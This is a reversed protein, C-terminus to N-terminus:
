LKQGAGSFVERAGGNAGRNRAATAKERGNVEEEQLGSSLEGSSPSNDSDDLNVAGGADVSGARSSKSGSPLNSGNAKSGNATNGGSAKSGTRVSRGGESQTDDLELKHPAGAFAVFRNSQAYNGGGAANFAANPANGGGRMGTNPGVTDGINGGAGGMGMNGGGMGGFAGQPAGGDVNRGDGGMYMMEQEM